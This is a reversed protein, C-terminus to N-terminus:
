HIYNLFLVLYVWLIGFFHWFLAGLRLKLYNGNDFGGKFAKINLNLVYFLSVIIHLLHLFTIVYLYSSASDATEIAKRQLFEPLPKKGGKRYLLRNKYTLEEGKFYIHFDEGIKGKVYFDGRGALVHLALFNLQQLDTFKVKNTDNSYLEGDRFSLYEKNLLLKFRKNEVFKTKKNRDIKKFQQMFKKLDSFDEEKMKKKGLLYDNGDVDVYKEDMMIEYRDGYRGDNILIHNRAAYIGNDILENYGRFQFLVFLLGLILTGLIGIRVGKPKKKKSSQISYEIFFTSLIILGTSIWFSIPFPTKLWFSDGMSVIYASTLGGFVMVISFISVYVLNKKMKERVEASLENEFKKKM